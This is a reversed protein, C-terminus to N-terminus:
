HMGLSRMLSMYPFDPTRLHNTTKPIGKLQTWSVHSFNYFYSGQFTKNIELFSAGLSWEAESAVHNISTKILTSKIEKVEYTRVLQIMERLEWFAM